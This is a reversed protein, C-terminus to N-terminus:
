RFGKRHGITMPTFDASASLTPGLTLAV